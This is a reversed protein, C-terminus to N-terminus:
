FDAPTKPMRRRDHGEFDISVKEALPVIFARGSNVGSDSREEFRVGEQSCMEGPTYEYIAFSSLLRILKRKPARQPSYDSMEWPGLLTRAAHYCLAGHFIGEFDM